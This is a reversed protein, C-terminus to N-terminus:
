TKKFAVGDKTLLMLEDYFVQKREKSHEGNEGVRYIDCAYLFELYINIDNQMRKFM